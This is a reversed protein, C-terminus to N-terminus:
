TADPGKWPFHATIQTGRGPASEISLEGDLLRARESMGVLGLTPAQADASANLLDFGRGDDAVELVLAHELPLLRVTVERAHAHRQANSLSEQVIRYVAIALDPHVPRTIPSEEFRIRMGHLRQQEELHWRLAASLGLTELQPPHLLLSLSRVRGLTRETLSAASDILTLAEPSDVQRQLKAFQVRIASLCQGIEDHLERAISRREREQMHILRGSLARLARRKNELRLQLSQEHEVNRVLHLAAARQKFHVHQQRISM